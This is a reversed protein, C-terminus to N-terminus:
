LPWAVARSPLTSDRVRLLRWRSVQLHGVRDFVQVGLPRQPLDRYERVADILEVALSPAPAPRPSPLLPQPGRPLLCDDTYVDDHAGHAALLQEVGPSSQHQRLRRLLSVFQPDPHHLHSFEIVARALERARGLVEDRSLGQLGQPPSVSIRADICSEVQCRSAHSEALPCQELNVLRQQLRRNAVEIAFISSSCTHGAQRVEFVVDLLPLQVKEGLLQRLPFQVQLVLGLSRDTGLELEAGEVQELVQRRAPCSLIQHSHSICPSTAALEHLAGLHFGVEHDSSRQVSHRKVAHLPSDPRNSVLAFLGIHVPM